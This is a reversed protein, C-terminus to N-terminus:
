NDTSMFTTHLQSQWDKDLMAARFGDLGKSGHLGFWAAITSGGSVSTILAVKEILARGDAGKMDRLQLLVGLSFSAARAGGGSLALGGLATLFARRSVM